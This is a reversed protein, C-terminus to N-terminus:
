LLENFVKFSTATKLRNQVFEFDRIYITNHTGFNSKLSLNRTFPNYYFSKFKHMLLKEHIDTEIYGYREGSGNLEIIIAKLSQSKLIENAGNLVETEFGEVDIKILLPQYKPYYSDLTVMDVSVSRKSLEEDTVVHNTVDEDNSFFLKESRNGVGKNECTVLNKINNLDMNNYLINFTDAIPEFSISHAKRVGSALITYSGVNAGIDFFLDNPILLHLLFSMDEFEHLGTYINGTVGTLGKKAYMKTPVIFPVIIMGSNIRSILQWYIFNSYAKILNRKALPHNNIFNFTRRIANIM